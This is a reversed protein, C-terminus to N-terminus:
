ADASAKLLAQIAQGVAASSSADEARLWSLKILFNLTDADYECFAIRVGRKVRDDYRRRKAREMARKSAQKNIPKDPAKLVRVHQPPTRTGALLM